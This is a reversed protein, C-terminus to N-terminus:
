RAAPANCRRIAEPGDEAGHCAHSRGPVQAPNDNGGIRLGPNARCDPNPCPSEEAVVLYNMYSVLRNRADPNGIAAGHSGDPFIWISKPEQAQEYLLRAHHVPVVQDQEGHMILLPIPAVESVGSLPSYDDNITLSLPWQFPWTLWFGALKERAILRYDAFASDVILGKIHRRYASNVVAEIALAGGLSQGFVIVPEGYRESHQVLFGLAAEVDGLAGAISPTGESQGYGQYDFLFVNFGRAPLWYVSGIHTSINEANGHLFLVTARAHGVAPLYWGHLKQKDEGPFCVDEYALGIDAPTRVEQKMPFFFLQTCGTIAACLVLILCRVTL